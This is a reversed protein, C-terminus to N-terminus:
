WGRQARQVKELDVKNWKHNISLAKLCELGVGANTSSFSKDFSFICLFELHIMHQIRSVEWFLCWFCRFVYICPHIKQTVMLTKCTRYGMTSKHETTRKISIESLMGHFSVSLNSGKDLFDGQPYRRYASSTNSLAHHDPDEYVHLCRAGMSILLDTVGPPSKTCQSCASTLSFSQPAKQRKM